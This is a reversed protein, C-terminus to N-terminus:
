SAISLAVVGLDPVAAVVEDGSAIPVQVISGTIVLDGPELGEGVARLLRAATSVDDAFGKAVRASARTDGNVILTAILEDAPLKPVMPSFAVARHFINAAVVSEPEEDPLGAM